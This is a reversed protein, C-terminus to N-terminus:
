MLVPLRIGGQEIRGPAAPSCHDTRGPALPSCHDTPGPAAPSCRDTPGPAAPSSQAPLRPGWRILMEDIMAVVAEEGLIRWAMHPGAYGRTQFLKILGARDFGLRIYEEIFCAAMERHAQDSGADFMVGHLTMPDTADPDEYPVDPEERILEM